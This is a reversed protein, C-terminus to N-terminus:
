NTYILQGKNTEHYGKKNGLSKCFPQPGDLKCEFAPKAIDMECVEGDPNMKAKYNVKATGVFVINAGTLGQSM